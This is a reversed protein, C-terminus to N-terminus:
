IVRGSVFYCIKFVSFSHISYDEKMCIRLNIFKNSYKKLLHKFECGLRALYFSLQQYHWGNRCSIYGGVGEVVENDGILEAPNGKPVRVVKFWRHAVERLVNLSTGQSQWCLQVHMSVHKQQLEPGEGPEASLSIEGLLNSRQDFFVFNPIHNHNAGKGVLYLLIQLDFRLIKNRIYASSHRSWVSPFSWHFHETSSICHAPIAPAERPILLHLHPPPNPKPLHLNTSPKASITRCNAEAPPKCRCLPLYPIPSTWPWAALVSLRCSPAWNWLTILYHEWGIQWIRYIDFQISDLCKITYNLDFIDLLLFRFTYLITNRVWRLFSVILTLNAQLIFAVQFLLVEQECLCSIPMSQRPAVQHHFRWRRSSGGGSLWCTSRCRWSCIQQFFPLVSSIYHMYLKMMPVYFPSFFAPFTVM